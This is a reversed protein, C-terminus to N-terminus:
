RGGQRDCRPVIGWTQSSYNPINKTIDKYGHLIVALLTGDSLVAGGYCGNTTRSQFLYRNWDGLLKGSKPQSWTLGKDTSDRYVFCQKVDADPDVPPGGETEFFVTRLVGKQPVCWLGWFFDSSQKLEGHPM